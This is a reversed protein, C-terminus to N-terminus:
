ARSDHVNDQHRVWEPFLDLLLNPVSYGLVPYFVTSCPARLDKLPLRSRKRASCAKFRVYAHSLIIAAEFRSRSALCKRWNLPPRLEGRFSRLLISVRYPFPIFSCSGMSRLVKGRPRSVSRRRYATVRGPEGASPRPSGATLPSCYSDRSVRGPPGRVRGEEPRDRRRSAQPFPTPLHFTRPLSPQPSTAPVSPSWLMSESVSFLTLPYLPAPQAPKQGRGESDLPCNLTRPKKRRASPFAYSQLPNAPSVPFSASSDSSSPEIQNSCPMPNTGKAPIPHNTTFAIAFSSTEGTRAAAASTSASSGSGTLPSARTLAAKSLLQITRAAASWAMAFRPSGFRMSLITGAIASPLWATRQVAAAATILSDVGAFGTVSLFSFYPGSGPRRRQAKRCPVTM